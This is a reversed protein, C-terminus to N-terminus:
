RAEPKYPQVTLLLVAKERPLQAPDFVVQVDLTRRNLAIM